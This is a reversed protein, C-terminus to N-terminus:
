LSCVVIFQTALWNPALKVFFNQVDPSIKRLFRGLFPVQGLDAAPIVKVVQYGMKTVLQVLSQITYFHVHTEDLIGYKEYTFKGFIFKFRVSIHLINPTSIILKANSNVLKFIKELLQDAGILHEIVDLLLVYDFYKKPLIKTNLQNLDSQIVKKYYKRAHNLAIQDVDIGYIEVSKKALEKGFYGTACGLDLVKSSKDVLNYVLEHM